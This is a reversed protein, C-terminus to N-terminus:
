TSKTIRYLSLVRDITYKTILIVSISGSSPQQDEVFVKNPLFKLLKHKYKIKPLTVHYFKM